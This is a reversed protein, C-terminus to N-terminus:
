ARPCIGKCPSCEIWDTYESLLSDGNDSYLLAAHSIGADVKSKHICTDTLKEKTWCAPQFFFFSLMYGSKYCLSSAVPTKIVHSLGPASEVSGAGCIVLYSKPHVSGKISFFDALLRYAFGRICSFLKESHYIKRLVKTEKYQGGGDVWPPSKIAVFTFVLYRMSDM